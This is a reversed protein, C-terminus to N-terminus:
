CMEVDMATLILSGCVRRTSALTRFIEVSDSIARADSFTGNGDTNEFWLLQRQIRDASVVDLDGDGDLDAPEIADIKESVPFSPVTPELLERGDGAPRLSGKGDINELWLIHNRFGGIVDLDGDGDLDAASRSQLEDFLSLSLGSIEHAIFETASLALRQELQEFHNTNQTDRVM